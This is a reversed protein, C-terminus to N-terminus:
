PRQSQRRDMDPHGRLLNGTPMPITTGELVEHSSSAGPTSGQILDTRRQGAAKTLISEEPKDFRVGRCWTGEATPPAQHPDAQSAESAQSNNGQSINYVETIGPPAQLTPGSEPPITGATRHLEQARVLPVQAPNNNTHFWANLDVCAQDSFPAHPSTWM